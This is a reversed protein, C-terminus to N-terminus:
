RTLGKSEIERQFGDFDKSLTQLSVDYLKAVEKLIEEKSRKEIFFGKFFRAAVGNLLHSTATQSDVVMLEEELEQWVLTKKLDM